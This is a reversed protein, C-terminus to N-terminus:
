RTESVWMAPQIRVVRLNSFSKLARTLLIAGTGKEVHNWAVMKQEFKDSWDVPDRWAEAMVFHLERVVVSNKSDGAIEILTDLVSRTLDVELIKFATRSFVDQVKNHLGWCTLRM